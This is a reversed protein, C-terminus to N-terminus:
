AGRAPDRGVGEAFEGAGGNLAAQAPLGGTPKAPSKPPSRTGGPKRGACKESDDGLIGNSRFDGNDIAVV